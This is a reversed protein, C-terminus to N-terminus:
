EKLLGMLKRKRGHVLTLKEWYKVCDAKKGSALYATPAQKLWDVADSYYKGKSSGMILDARRRWNAIVWNPKYPVAATM